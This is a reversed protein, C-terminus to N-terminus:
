CYDRARSLSKVPYRARGPRYEVRNMNWNNGFKGLCKLWVALSLLVSTASHFLNRSIWVRKITLLFKSFLSWQATMLLTRSRSNLSPKPEIQIELLNSPEVEVHRQNPPRGEQVRDEPPNLRGRNYEVNQCDVKKCEVKKKSPVIM